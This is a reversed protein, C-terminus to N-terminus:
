KDESTPQPPSPAAAAKQEMQFLPNNMTAIDPIQVDVDGLNPDKRKAIEIDRAGHDAVVFRVGAPMDIGILSKGTSGIAKFDGIYVARGPRITFPVSFDPGPDIMSHNGSTILGGMQTTVFYEYLEWDGPPLKTVTVLGNEDPGSFDNKTSSLWNYADNQLNRHESHDRKRFELTYALYTKNPESSITM